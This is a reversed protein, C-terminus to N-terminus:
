DARLSRSLHRSGSRDARANGNGDENEREDLRVGDGDNALEVAEM